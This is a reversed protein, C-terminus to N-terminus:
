LRLRHFSKLFIKETEAWFCVMPVRPKYTPQMENPGTLSFTGCNGKLSFFFVLPFSFIFHHYKLTKPPGSKRCIGLSRVCGTCGSFHPNKYPLRSAQHSLPM